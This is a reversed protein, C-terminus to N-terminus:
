NEGEKRGRFTKIVMFLQNSLKGVGAYFEVSLEDGKRRKCKFGTFVIQARPSKNLLATRCVFAIM